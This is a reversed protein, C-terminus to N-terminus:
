DEAKSEDRLSDVSEGIMMVSLNHDSWMMWLAVALLPVAIKPEGDLGLLFSFILAARGVIRYFYSLVISHRDNPKLHGLM